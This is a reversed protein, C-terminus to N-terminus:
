SLHGLTQYSDTRISTRLAETTTRTKVTEKNRSFHQLWMFISLHLPQNRPNAAFLSQLSPSTQKQPERQLSYDNFVNGLHCARFLFDSECKKFRMPRAAFNRTRSNRTGGYDLKSMYITWDIDNGNMIKARIPISPLEHYLSPPSFDLTVLKEKYTLGNPGLIWAVAKRQVNEIVRLDGKNSMWSISAYSVVPVVLLCICQKRNVPTAKSINLKHTHHAKIATEARKSAHPSSSLKEPFLLRLENMTKAKESTYNSLSVSACSKIAGYKTKAFFMTMFSGSCWRYLWTVDINLTVPNDGSFQFDDAYGFNTSM